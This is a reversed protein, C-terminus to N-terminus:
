CQCVKSRATTIIKAMVIAILPFVIMCYAVSQRCETTLQVAYQVYGIAGGLVFGFVQIAGLHEAMIRDLMGYFDLLNMKMITREVVDAIHHNGSFFGAFQEKPMADLASGLAVHLAPVVKESIMDWFRDDVIDLNLVDSVFEGSVFDELLKPESVIKQAMRDCFIPLLSALRDRFQERHGPVKAYEELFTRIQPYGIETVSEVIVSTAGAKFQEWISDSKAAKRSQADTFGSVMERVFAVVSEPEKEIYDFFAASLSNSVAESRGIKALLNRMTRYNGGSVIERGILRLMQAVKDKHATALGRAFEVGRIKGMSDKSLFLNGLKPVLYAINEATMFKEEAILGMQRAVKCKNQPILGRKWFGLTVLSLVRSKLLAEHSSTLSTNEASDFRGEGSLDAPDIPYYLMQIAIYNTLYGIAASVFIVVFWSPLAPRIAFDAGFYRLTPTLLVLSSHIAVVSVTIVSMPFCFLEGCAFARPLGRTKAIIEYRKLFFTKIGFM